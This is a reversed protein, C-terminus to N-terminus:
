DSGRLSGVANQEGLYFDMNNTNHTWHLILTDGYLKFLEVQAESMMVVAALDGNEDDVVLCKNGAFVAFRQLILRLNTVADQFGLRDQAFNSIQKATIEIGYNTAITDCIHQPTANAQLNGAVVRAHSSSLIRLIKSKGRHVQRQPLVVVVLIIAHSHM